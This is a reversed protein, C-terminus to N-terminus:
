PTFQQAVPRQSESESGLVIVQLLVGSHGQTNPIISFAFNLVVGKTSKRPFLHQWSSSQLTTFKM